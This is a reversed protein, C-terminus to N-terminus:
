ELPLPESRPRSINRRKKIKEWTHKYDAVLKENRQVSCLRQLKFLSSLHVLFVSMVLVIHCPHGVLGSESGYKLVYCDTNTHESIPRLKRYLM